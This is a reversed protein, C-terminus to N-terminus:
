RETTEPTTPDWTHDKGQGWVHGGKEFGGEQGNGTQPIGLTTKERRGVSAGGRTRTGQKARTTIGLATEDNRGASTGRGEPESQAATM